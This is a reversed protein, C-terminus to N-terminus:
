ACPIWRTSAQIGIRGSCTARSRAAATAMARVGRTDYRVVAIGCSALREAIRRFMFTQFSRPMNGDRDQPGSGSILVVPRISPARGPETHSLFPHPDGGLTCRGREKRRRGSGCLRARNVAQQYEERVVTVNRDPVEVCMVRGAGDAFVSVGIVGALIIKYETLPIPPGVDEDSKANAGVDARAGRRPRSPGLLEITVSASADAANATPVVAMFSQVGGRLHDYMGLPLQYHSFVNDDLVVRPRYVKTQRSMGPAGVSPIM